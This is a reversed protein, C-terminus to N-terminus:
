PHGTMLRVLSDLTNAKIDIIITRVSNSQCPCSRLLGLSGPCEYKETPNKHNVQKIFKDKDAKIPLCLTQM